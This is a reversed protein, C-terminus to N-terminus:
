AIHPVSSAYPAVGTKRGRGAARGLNRDEKAIGVSQGTSDYRIKHATQYQKLTHKATATSLYRITRRMGQVTHPASM